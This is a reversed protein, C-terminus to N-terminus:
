HMHEGGSPMAGTDLWTYVASSLDHGGDHVKAALDAAKAPDETRLAEELAKMSTVLDDAMPKLADPWETSQAVIRARRVSGLAGAPISGARTSEDIDHFGSSDLQYTAHMVQAKMAMMHAMEAEDASATPAHYGVSLLTLAVGAAFSTAIVAIKGLTSKFM